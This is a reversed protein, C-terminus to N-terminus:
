AALEREIGYKRLKEALTTRRLGLLQAAHAVIGDSRDLAERILGLEIRAMHDRLDIGDASLGPLAPDATAAVPAAPPTAAAVAVAAPAPAAPWPAPPPQTADPPVAAAPLADDDAEAVAEDTAPPTPAAAAHDARPATDEVDSAQRRELARAFGDRPTGQVGDRSGPQSIKPASSSTSAGQLPALGTM